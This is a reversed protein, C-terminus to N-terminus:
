KRQVLCSPRLHKTQKGLSPPHIRPTNTTLTSFHSNLIELTEKPGDLQQSNHTIYMPTNRKIRITPSRLLRAVHPGPYWQRIATKERECSQGESATLLDNQLWLNKRRWQVELDMKSGAAYLHFRWYHSNWIRAKQCVEVYAMSSRDRKAGPARVNLASLGLIVQLGKSVFLRLFSQVIKCFSKDM